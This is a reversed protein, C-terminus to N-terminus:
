SRGSGTEEEESRYTTVVAAAVRLGMHAAIIVVPVLESSAAMHGCTSATEAEYANLLGDDRVGAVVGPTVIMGGGAGLRDLVAEAAYVGTMSPFRPGVRDDNPGTLPSIWTLNAHDIVAVLSAQHGGRDDSDDVGATELRVGRCVYGVLASKGAPAGGDALAERLLAVEAATLPRSLNAVGAQPLSVVTGEPGALVRAALAEASDRGLDARPGVLVKM